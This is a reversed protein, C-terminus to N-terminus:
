DRSPPAPRQVGKEKLCADMAEREQGQPPAPPKGGKEGPKPVSVGLQHACEELAKRFASDRPARDGASSERPGPPATDPALAHADGVGACALLALELLAVVLPASQRMHKVWTKM